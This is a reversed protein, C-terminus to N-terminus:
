RLRDNTLDVQSPNRIASSPIQWRYYETESGFTRSGVAFVVYPPAVRHTVSFRGDADTQTSATAAPLIQWVVYLDHRLVEAAALSRDMESVSLAAFNEPCAIPKMVAFRARSRADVERAYGEFHRQPYICVEVRSLTIKQGGDTVVFCQGSITQPLGTPVPPHAPVPTRDLPAGPSEALMSDVPQAVSAVPVSAVLTRGDNGALAVSAVLFLIIVLSRHIM